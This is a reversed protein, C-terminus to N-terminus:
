SGSTARSMPWCATGSSPPAGRHANFLANARSAEVLDADATPNALWRYYPQRGLRVRKRLDRGEDSEARTAGPKAGVEIAAQRVWNQLCAESTKFDAAVQLLPVGSERNRAVRM